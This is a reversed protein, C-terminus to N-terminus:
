VGCYIPYQSSTTGLFSVQYKRAFLYSTLWQHETGSIGYSPLKNIISAHSITDFVKSMDIFVAGTLQGKDMKTKIQDTFFAIAQETSSNRRFGFQRDSLLHNNELHDMLQKHACREFVKSLAPLISIPRYNDFNDKAGSKYAPTIRVMKLDKPFMGTKLSLNIIFTLSETIAYTTDNLYCTPLNDVGAACKRKLKRLQKLVDQVTVSQFWFRPAM